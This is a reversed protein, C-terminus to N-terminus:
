KKNKIALSRIIKEIQKEYNKMKVNNEFTIYSLIIFAMIMGFDMMRVFFLKLMFVEFVKPFITFLLFILWIFIWIVFSNFNIEEKKWHLFLKYLM